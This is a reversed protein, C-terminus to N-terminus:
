NTYFEVLFMIRPNKGHGPELFNYQSHIEYLKTSIRRACVEKAEMSVKTGEV